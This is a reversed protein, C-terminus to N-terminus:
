KENDYIEYSFISPMLNEGIREVSYYIMMVLTFVPYNSLLEWIRDGFGRGDHANWCGESRRHWYLISELNWWRVDWHLFM